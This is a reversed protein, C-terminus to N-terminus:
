HTADGRVVFLARLDGPPRYGQETAEFRLKGTERLKLETCLSILAVNGGAFVGPPVQGGEITLHFTGIPGDWTAATALVYGVEYGVPPHNPTALRRLARDTAPDICFARELAGAGTGNWHGDVRAVYNFGLVPRYSHEIVTVGPPFIQEWHFKIRTVWQAVDPSARDGPEAPKIAGVDLLRHRVAPALTGPDFWRPQLLLGTGGAERLVASVDHGDPLVARVELEPQVVRGNVRVTFDIFRPDTVDGGLAVHAGSQTEWGGPTLLPVDPLPFAVRLTAPVTRDNRMEFRVRIRAPSLTLDERQMVIGPAKVFVLGGAALAAAGDDARAPAPATLLALGCVARWIVARFSTASV